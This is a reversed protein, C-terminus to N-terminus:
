NLGNILNGINDKFQLFPTPLNFYRKFWSKRPRREGLCRLPKTRCLRQFKDLNLPDLACGDHLSDAMNDDEHNALPLM